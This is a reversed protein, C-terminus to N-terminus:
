KGAAYLRQLLSAHSGPKPLKAGRHRLQVAKSPKGVKPALGLKESLVSTSGAAM